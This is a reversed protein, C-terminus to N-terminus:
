RHRAQEFTDRLMQMEGEPTAPYERVTGDALRVRAMSPVEGLEYHCLWCEPMDDAETGAAPVCAHGAGYLANDTISEFQEPPLAELHERCFAATPTLGEDDTM